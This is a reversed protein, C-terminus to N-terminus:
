PLEVVVLPCIELEISTMLTDITVSAVFPRHLFLDPLTACASAAVFFVVHMVPPEAPKTDAAMVRFREIGDLYDSSRFYIM